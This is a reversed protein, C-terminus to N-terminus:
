TNKSPSAAAWLGFAGDIHVWAGAENARQCLTVFDDFAGSNVNGAQLILLTHEDLEPLQDPDMRGQEDVPVIEATGHGMGILALARKVTGHAHAGMVVRIPPAGFLGQTNVDWGQRKLLANLLCCSPLILELGDLGLEVRLAEKLARLADAELPGDAVLSHPCSLGTAPGM